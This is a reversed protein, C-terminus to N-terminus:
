IDLPHVNLGYFWDSRDVWVQSQAIARWMILSQLWEGTGWLMGLGWMRSAVAM